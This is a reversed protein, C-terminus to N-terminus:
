TEWLGSEVHFGDQMCVCHLNVSAEYSICDARGIGMFKFLSVVHETSALM